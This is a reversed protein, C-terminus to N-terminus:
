SRLRWLSSSKYGRGVLGVRHRGRTLSHETCYVAPRRGRTLYEPGVSLSDNLANLHVYVSRLLTERPFPSGLIRTQPFNHLIIFGGSFNHTCAHNWGPDGGRSSLPPSVNCKISPPLSGGGGRGGISNIACPGSFHSNRGADVRRFSPRLFPRGSALIVRERWQFIRQIM